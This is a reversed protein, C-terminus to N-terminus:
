IRKNHKEYYVFTNEYHERTQNEDGWSLPDDAYCLTFFPEIEKIKDPLLNWASYAKAAFSNIDMEKYALKLENFFLKGFVDYDIEVKSSYECITGITNKIDNSCWQLELLLDNDPHQLFIENLYDNYKNLTMLECNLLTAYSLLREIM